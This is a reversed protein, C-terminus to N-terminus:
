SSQLCELSYGWSIRGDRGMFISTIQWCGYILMRDWTAAGCNCCRMMVARAMLSEKALSHEESIYDHVHCWLYYLPFGRETIYPSVPLCKCFNLFIRSSRFCHPFAAPVTRFSQPFVAPVTRPSLKLATVSRLHESVNRVYHPVRATGSRVRRRLASSPWWLEHLRYNQKRVETETSRNGCKM